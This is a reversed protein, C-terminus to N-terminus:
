KAATLAHAEGSAVDAIWLNREFANDEWNTKQIEYVVRTGEPSIKPNFADEWELSQDPTPLPSAPTAAAPTPFPKTEVPGSQQACAPAASACCVGACLAFLFGKRM